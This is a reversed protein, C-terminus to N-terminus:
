RREEFAVAVTCRTCGLHDHLRVLEAEEVRRRRSCPSIQPATQVSCAHSPDKSEVMRLPIDVTQHTAAQSASCSSMKKQTQLSFPQASTYTAICVSLSWVITATGAPSSSGSMGTVDAMPPLWQQLRCYCDQQPQLNYDSCLLLRPISDRESLLHCDM